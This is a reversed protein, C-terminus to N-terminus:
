EARPSLPPPREQLLSYWIKVCNWQEIFRNKLKSVGRTPIQEVICQAKIKLVSIIVGFLVGGFSVMRTDM